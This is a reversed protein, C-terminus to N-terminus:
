ARQKFIRGHEPLNSIYSEFVRIRERRLCRYLFLADQAQRRLLMGEFHNYFNLPDDMVVSLSKKRKWRKLAHVSNRCLIKCEQEKKSIQLLYHIQLNENAPKLFNAAKFKSKKPKFPNLMFISEYAINNFYARM